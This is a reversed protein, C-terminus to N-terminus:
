REYIVNTRTKLAVRYGQQAILAPLDIAWRGPADEVILLRPWVRPPADRFFAELILDEAGEVDLKVADLRDFGEEAVLTALAKAPVRVSTGAGHTGVLRMSTEGRNKPDVFLTVEGDRDAVAMELAKIASFGNQRINFSLREFIDAQPEIALVRARPGALTAAFLAYGGANAGVDIFVFDSGLRGALFRREELDFYQPTFLLNKEAVNHAPYLRMRAGLSDVDLPRGGLARIGIARLTFALRRGAWGTSCLRALRVLGSLWGRPAHRGFPALDNSARSTM